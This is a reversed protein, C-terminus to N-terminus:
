QERSGTLLSRIILDFKRNKVIIFMFDISLNLEKLDFSINNRTIEKKV